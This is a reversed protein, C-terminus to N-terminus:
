HIIPRNTFLSSYLKSPFTIVQDSSYKIGANKRLCHLFVMFISQINLRWGIIQIQSDQICLLIEAWKTAKHHSVTHYKVLIQFSIQYGIVYYLQWSVASVRLTTAAHLICQNTQLCSEEATHRKM